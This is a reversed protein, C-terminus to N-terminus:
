FEWSRVRDSCHQHQWESENRWWQFHLNHQKESAGQDSSQPRQTEIKQHILFNHLAPVGQLQWCIYCDSLLIRRRRWRRIWCNSYTHPSEELRLTPISISKWQLRYHHCFFSARCCDNQSLERSCISTATTILGEIATLPPDRWCCSWPLDISM